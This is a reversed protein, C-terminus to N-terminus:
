QVRLADLTDQHQQQASKSGEQFLASRWSGYTPNPLMFWQRGFRRMFPAVARDRALATDADLTMFDGIQDGFLMLVRYDDGVKQRRCTKSHGVQQCGAIQTGLGLFADPGFVPFGAAKLNALTAKDLAQDRNSIYFVRVGHDAAFRTFAVAGPLPRAAQERVWQAWTASDYSDGTRILRAQYPSNDLVTEDIDLIVAPPQGTESGHEAPVLARWDPDALAQPLQRTAARYTQKFIADHAISTQVWATANLNDAAYNRPTPVAVALPVVASDPATTPATPAVPTQACAALLAAALGACVLRATM